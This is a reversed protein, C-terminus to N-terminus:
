QRLRCCTLMEFQMRQDQLDKEGGGGQWAHKMYRSLAYLKHWLSHLNWVCVTKKELQSKGQCKQKGLFEVIKMNVFGFMDGYLCGQIHMEQRGQGGGGGGWAGGLHM